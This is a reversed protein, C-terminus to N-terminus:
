LASYESDKVNFLHYEDMSKRGDSFNVDVVKIWWELIVKGPSWTSSQAETVEFSYKGASADQTLTEFGSEAVKSYKLLVTGDEHKLIYKANTIDSHDIAAANEDVHSVVVRESEGKYLEVAM